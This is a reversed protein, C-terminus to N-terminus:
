PELLGNLKIKNMIQRMKAFKVPERASGVTIKNMSSYINSLTVDPQQRPM